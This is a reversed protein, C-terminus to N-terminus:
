NNQVENKVKGSGGCTPCVIFDEADKKHKPLYKNVIKHWSINQGEELEYVKNIEPFQKYFQLCRQLMREDLGSDKSITQISTQTHRSLLGGIEHYLAILTERYTKVGEIVTAKLEEIFETYEETAVVLDRM